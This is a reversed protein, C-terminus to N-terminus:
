PIGSSNAAERKLKNWALQQKKLTTGLKSKGLPLGLAEQELEPASNTIVKNGL